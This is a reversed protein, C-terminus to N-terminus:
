DIQTFVGHSLKAMKSVMNIFEAEGRILATKQNDQSTGSEREFLMQAAIETAQPAENNKLYKKVATPTIGLTKTIGTMGKKNLLKQIAIPPLKMHHRKNKM